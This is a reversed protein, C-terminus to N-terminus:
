EFAIQDITLAGIGRSPPEFILQVQRVTCLDFSFDALPIALTTWDRGCRGYFRLPQTCLRSGDSLGILVSPPCATDAGDSKLTIRLRSLGNLPPSEMIIRASGSWQLSRASDGLSEENTFGRRALPLDAPTSRETKWRTPSSFDELVFPSTKRCSGRPTSVTVAAAPGCGGENCAVVRFSYGSGSALTTVNFACLDTHDGSSEHGPLPIAAKKYVVYGTAHAVPKWQLNIQTSGIVKASLGAPAPPPSYGPDDTPEFQIRDLACTGDTFELKFYSDGADLRVNRVVVPNFANPRAGPSLTVTELLRAGDWL